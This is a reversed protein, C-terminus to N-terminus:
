TTLRSHAYGIARLKRASNLVTEAAQTAEIFTNMRSFSFRLTSAAHDSDYGM